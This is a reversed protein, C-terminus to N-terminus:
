ASDPFYVTTTFTISMKPFSVVFVSITSILHDWGGTMRLTTATERLSAAVFDFSGTGTHASISM